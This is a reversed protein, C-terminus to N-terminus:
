LTIKAFAREIAEDLSFGPEEMHAPAYERAKMMQDYMSQRASQTPKEEETAGMIDTAFGYDVAEQATLWTEEDMLERIRAESLTSVATYATISATNIKEVDDAVKRLKEANGYGASMANHIMLFSLEGMTREDGACFIISAASCAFGDCFTHVKASHRKLATYIAVAEAVEGGYSNICVDITDVDMADIDRKVDYAVVDSERYPWSTIDGYIDLTGHRDATTIQYYKKSM